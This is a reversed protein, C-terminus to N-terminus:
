GLHGRHWLSLLDMGWAVAVHLVVGWWVSNSKLSLTGLVFGAIISGVCEPLPKGFHIMMYPVMMVWVSAYGLRDKTGHVMFGRFFFELAAFQMAYLLEWLIFNPWWAEDATLKYFPYKGQFAKSFSVAFVVPAMVALMLMYVKAHQLIGKVRLGFHAIPERLVFRIVLLPIIVYGIVRGTAWFLRGNFRRNPAQVVFHELADGWESLGVTSLIDGWIAIRGSSGLYRTYIMSMMVTILVIALRRDAATRGHQAQWAASDRDTRDRVEVVYTRWLGRMFGVIGVARLYAVRM